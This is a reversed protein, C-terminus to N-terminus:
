SQVQRLAFDDNVAFTALREEKVRNASLTQTSNIAYGQPQANVTMLGPFVTPKVVVRAKRKVKKQKMTLLPESETSNRQSRSLGCALPQFSHSVMPNELEIHVLKELLSQIKKKTGHSNPENSPKSFPTNISGGKQGPAPLSTQRKV